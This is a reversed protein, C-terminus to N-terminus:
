FEFVVGGAEVAGFGVAGAAESESIEGSAVEFQFDALLAEEYDGIASDSKLGAGVFEIEGEIVGFFDVFLNLDGSGGILDVRLVGGLAVSEGGAVDAVNGNWARM